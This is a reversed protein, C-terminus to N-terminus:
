ALRRSLAGTPPSNMVAFGAIWLRIAVSSIVREQVLSAPRPPLREEDDEDFDEEPEVEVAALVASFSAEAETALLPM